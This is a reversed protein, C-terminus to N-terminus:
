WSKRKKRDDDDDEDDDADDPQEVTICIDTGQQRGVKLPELWQSHRIRLTSNGSPMVSTHSQRRALASLCCGLFLPEALPSGESAQRFLLVAPACTSRLSARTPPHLCLVPLNVRVSLSAVHVCDGLIFIIHVSVFVHTCVHTHVIRSNTRLRPQGM